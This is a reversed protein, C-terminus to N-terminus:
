PPDPFSRNEKEKDQICLPPDRHGKDLITDEGLGATGIPLSDSEQYQHGAVSDGHERMGGLDDTQIGTTPLM